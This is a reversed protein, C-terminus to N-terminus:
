SEYTVAFSKSLSIIQKYGDSTNFSVHNDTCEDIQIEGYFVDNSTSTQWSESDKYVIIEKPFNLCNYPLKHVIAFINNFSIIQKYYKYEYTTEILVLGSNTFSLNGDLVEFPEDKSWEDYNKYLFIDM